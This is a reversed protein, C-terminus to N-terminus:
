FQVIEFRGEWFETSHWHGLVCWSQVLELDVQERAEDGQIWVPSDGCECGQLMGVKVVHIPTTHILRLSSRYFSCLKVKM